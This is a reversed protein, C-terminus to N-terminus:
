VLIRDLVVLLTPQVMLSAFLNSKMGVAHGAFILEGPAPWPLRGNLCQLFVLFSRRLVLSSKARKKGYRKTYSGKESRRASGCIGRWEEESQGSRDEMLRKRKMKHIVQLKRGQSAKLRSISTTPKESINTNVQCVLRHWLGPPWLM